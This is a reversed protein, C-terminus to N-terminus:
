CHGNSPPTSPHISPPFSTRTENRPSCPFCQAATAWGTPCASRYRQPNTEIHCGFAEYPQLLEDHGRGAVVDAQLDALERQVGVIGPRQELLHLPAPFKADDEVAAVQHCSLDELLHAPTLPFAFRSGLLGHTHPPGVASHGWVPTCSERPGCDVAVSFAVAHGDKLSVTPNRCFISNESFFQFYWVTVTPLFSCITCSSFSSHQTCCWAWGPAPCNQPKGQLQVAGAKKGRGEQRKGRWGSQYRHSEWGPGALLSPMRQGKRLVTQLEQVKLWIDTIKWENLSGGKKRWM